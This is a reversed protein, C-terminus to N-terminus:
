THRHKGGNLNPQLIMTQLYVDPMLNVSVRKTSSPNGGSSSAHSQLWSWVFFYFAGVATTSRGAVGASDNAGEIRCRCDIVGQGDGEGEDLIYVVQSMDSM